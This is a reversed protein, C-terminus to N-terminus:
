KISILYDNNFTYTITNLKKVYISLKDEKKYDSVEKNSKINFLRNDNFYGEVTKIIVNNNEEKIDIIEREINIGTFPKSFSIFMDKSEIYKFSCGDYKFSKYELKDNFIRKYAENLSNADFYTSLEDSTVYKDDLLKFALYEKLETTLNGNYFDNIYDCNSDIKVKDILYSYKNILEETSPKSSESKSQENNNSTEKTNNNAKDFYGNTYLYFASYGIFVILLIIVITDIILFVNKNRIQKKYFKISSSSAEKEVRDRVYKDIDQKYDNINFVKEKGLKEKVYKDIETKYDNINFEKEKKDVVKIENKKPM